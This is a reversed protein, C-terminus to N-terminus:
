QKVFSTNIKTENLEIMCNILLVEEFKFIDEIKIDIENLIGELLLEQRKTGNLLPTSSTYYKSGDRFVINSYSSDTVMGNKIIIIDCCDERLSFLRNLITRDQYKFNYNFNSDSHVIKLKEVKKYVYPLFEFKDLKDSYLIRLKYLGHCYKEPIRISSLDINSKGYFYQQTTNVRLQHLKLNTIVGNIVKISEIFLSM